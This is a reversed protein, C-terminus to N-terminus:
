HNNPSSDSSYRGFSNTPAYAKLFPYQEIDLILLLILSIVVDIDYESALIDPVESRDTVIDKFNMRYCWTLSVGNVVNLFYVVSRWTVSDNSAHLAHRTWHLCISNYNLHPNTIQNAQKIAELGILFM